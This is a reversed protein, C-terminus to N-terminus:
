AAGGGAGNSVYRSTVLTYIGQQEYRDDHVTITAEYLIGAARKTPTVECTLRLGDEEKEGAAHTPDCSFEEARNTALQVAESMRNSSRAELQASSFLKVFVALSIMLFALVVLAEILFAIGRHGGSRQKGGGGTAMESSIAM